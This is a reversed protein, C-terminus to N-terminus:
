YENKKGKLWEPKGHKGTLFDEIGKILYVMRLQGIYVRYLLLIGMYGYASIRRFRKFSKKIFLYSNRAMLRQTTMSAEGFTSSVKHYIISEPVYIIQFGHNSVRYSYDVDDCYIFYDDDLLGVKSVADRSLCLCCGTAFTIKIPREQSELREDAFHDVRSTYYNLSGGAYWIKEREKEYMIKGISLGCEPCEHFAQLLPELFNKEVITDNNLLLIYEAGQKLAYEIGVNNGGTFGLNDETYLLKTKESEYKRLQRVSDDESHNDVVIIKYNKYTIELLSEICEITIQSNNYNILIIFVLPM